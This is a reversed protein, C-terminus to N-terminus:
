HFKFPLFIHLGGSLRLKNKGVNVTLLTATKCILFFLREKCFIEEESACGICWTRSSHCHNETWDDLINWHLAEGECELHLDTLGFDYERRSIKLVFIFLNGKKEKKLL